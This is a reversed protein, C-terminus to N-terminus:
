AFGGVELLVLLWGVVAGDFFSLDWDWEFEDLCAAAM